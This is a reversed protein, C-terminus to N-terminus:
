TWSVTLSVHKKRIVSGGPQPEDAAGVPTATIRPGKGGRHSHDWVQVQGNFRAAVKDAEPGHGHVGFEYVSTGPESPAKRTTLYALTAGDVVAPCAMRNAPKVIGTDLEPDVALWCYGPMTTALWVQLTDFPETNGVTVGSWVETRPSALVGNLLEVDHPPEDDFRLGVEKGRLLVLREDHEGAGQMAVFGCVEVSRSVLQDGEREFVVSRTLGRLRVPVVIRGGEALQEVWAPPIDWAGVTVIIRDFPADDKAGFEGDACFANVNTYGSAALGAHAREIVDADIDISTVEGTPGVLETLLAANYGGSGVELVRHGPEVEAQELMMAVVGPQSVSSISVGHENRKTVVSDNAYARALPVDPLFLHRPVTLFAEAVRDTRLSGQERLENVLDSRLSEASTAPEVDTVNM